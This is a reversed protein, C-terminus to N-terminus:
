RETERERELERARGGDGGAEVDDYLCIVIILITIIKIIIIIIISIISVIIMLTIVRTIITIILIIMIKTMMVMRMADNVVSRRMMEDHFATFDLSALELISTQM